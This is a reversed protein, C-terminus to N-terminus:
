GGLNESGDEESEDDSDKMMADLTSGGKNNSSFLDVSKPASQKQRERELVAQAEYRRKAAQQLIIAAKNRAREEAAQAEADSGGFVLTMTQTTSEITQRISDSNRVFFDQTGHRQTVLKTIGQEAAASPVDDSIRVTINRLWRVGLLRRMATTYPVWVNLNDSIMFGSEQPSTVGVIRVPLPINRRKIADLRTKLDPVIGSASEGFDEEEEDDDDEENDAM